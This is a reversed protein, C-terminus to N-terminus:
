QIADKLKTNLTELDKGGMYKVYALTKGPAINNALCNAFEIIKNTSNFTVGGCSQGDKLQKTLYGDLDSRAKVDDATNSPVPAKSVADSAAKATDNTKAQAIYMAVAAPSMVAVKGVAFNESVEMGLIIDQLGMNSHIGSVIEPTIDARNSVAESRPSTIIGRCTSVSLFVATEKGDTKGPTNSRIKTCSSMTLFTAPSETEVVKGTPISYFQSRIYGAKLEYMQTQKNETLSLGIGTDISSLINERVVTKSCGAVFLAIVVAMLFTSSRMLKINNM